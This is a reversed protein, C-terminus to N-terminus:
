HLLRVIEFTVGLAAGYMSMVVLITVLYMTARTNDTPFMDVFFQSISKM